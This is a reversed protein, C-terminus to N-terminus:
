TRQEPISLHCDIRATLLDRDEPHVLQSWESLHCPSAHIDFQEYFAPNYFTM